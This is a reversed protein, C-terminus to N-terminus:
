PAVERGRGASAPALIAVMQALTKGLPVSENEPQVLFERIADVHELAQDYRPNSGPEYAGVHVLDKAEEYDALFARLQAAMSRHAPSVVDNMLRSVSALVDVAPYHGRSALERSLVVHGDLSARAADVVPDDLDDAEALVTYIATLSGAGTGPGAREVLKTLLGIVSPPYGKTTPPEGVALGVERQAMAVRTLSDMTLLVKHGADRFYEAITTAVFAGRTREVPSRDGTSVVVVSRALGAEGLEREIFQRVERGREGILAVVNVDAQSNRCIMGMLVSKGVGSGAVIALRQGEGCTAFADIAKIGLGLPRRIIERQLPNPPSSYIARRDLALPAPGGDLPNGLGDIVRGMLRPGLDITPEHRGPFISSGPAVGQMQGLPMLLVSEGRFGVVEAAVASGNGEPRVLCMSGLRADPVWGEVMLGVVQTVKGAVRIPNARGIERKIRDLREGTLSM